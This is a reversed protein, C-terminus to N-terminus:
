IQLLERGFKRWIPLRLSELFVIFRKLINFYLAVFLFGTMIWIALINFPLTDIKLNGIQKYPAYFHARGYKSGPKMFVPDAKQILRNNSDYIKNTNLRNLVIDSLNENYNQERLEQFAKKGMSNSLQNTLSDRRITVLRNRARIATSISDLYSKAEDGTFDNFKTYDLGSTWSGPKIGTVSALEKIHFRIKKLNRESNDRYEPNKGVATCQDIKVKLTPILFATYWDSQSIELDYNFFPKEFRNSKFEEVLLAEYAWRTVMADGVVPVYIKRSISKHLDDFKIMAGGLLLMPVLLLPILIYISVASRMGASINLGLMNGFCATSFLILWQQLMMGRIELLTNAVLVFTLSQIASLIFLFNIKSVLYSM